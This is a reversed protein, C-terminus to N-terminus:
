PVALIMRVEDLGPLPSLRYGVGRELLRDADALTRGAKAWLEPNYTIAVIPRFRRLTESASPLADFEGGEVDLKV